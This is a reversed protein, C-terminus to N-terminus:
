NKRDQSVINSLKLTKANDGVVATQTDLNVMGEEVNQCYELCMQTYLTQVEVLRKCRHYLNNMVNTDNSEFAAVVDEPGITTQRLLDRIAEADGVLLKDRYVEDDNFLNMIKQQLQESFSM